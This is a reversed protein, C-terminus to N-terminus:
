IVVLVNREPLAPRAFEVSNSSDAFAKGNCWRLQVTGSHSQKDHMVKIGTVDDGFIVANHKCLSLGIFQTLMPVMTLLTRYNSESSAMDGQTPYLVPGSNTTAATTRKHIAIGFEDLDALNISM